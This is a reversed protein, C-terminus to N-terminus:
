YRRGDRRLRARPELEIDDDLEDSDWEDEQDNNALELFRDLGMARVPAPQQAAENGQGPAAAIRIMVPEIADEEDGSPLRELPNEVPGAPPEENAQPDQPARRINQPGPPPRGRHPPARHNPAQQRGQRRQNLRAAPPALQPREPINHIIHQGAANVLEIRMPGARGPRRQNPAPEEDSTDEEDDSFRVLDDDGAFDAFDAFDEAGLEDELDSDTDSDDEWEAHGGAYGQGAETGDGGELEWLRMYCTSKLDNFHKYPNDEMLYSSCLYCFHTSCKFCIMHNCGMTKQSPASCTPCATSYHKIYDLSAKEEENLENQRRPNCMAKEGHWGRKCVSCFAFSCDECISLRESMPVDESKSNKSKASPDKDAEGESESGSDEIDNILDTPMPHRKSRAAGQCWSRPCYITNKDAELKRKRKLRVYRQVLEQEIPIQLLESPNITRDPRRRKPAGQIAKEANKACGPDLCKVNDVDGETICNNYFDQLCSICFVHGCLVLRHCMAGKKPELCVGCDFTEKEFIERKIKLDLDLLALKLDSSLQFGNADAAVGFAHEAAQTLHDIYIYVVEGRGSEEWLKECDDQLRKLIEQPVWPPTSSLRVTPPVQAPYREPLIIHVTLPPLHALDHEDVATEPQLNLPNNIAPGDDQEISTPPTPLQPATSDASQQFRIKIPESPFVALSLSAAYPNKPDTVIEPYIAAITSLETAREDDDATGTDGDDM